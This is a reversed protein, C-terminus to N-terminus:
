TLDENNDFNLEKPESSEDINPLQPLDSDNDSELDNNNFTNIGLGENGIEPEEGDEDGFHVKLAEKMKSVWNDVSKVNTTASFLTQVSDLLKLATQLDESSSFLQWATSTFDTSSNLANLLEDTESNPIRTLKYKLDSKVLNPIDQVFKNVTNEIVASISEILKSYRLDSRILSVATDGLNQTFDAYNKPFRLGMFLKSLVYDLDTLNGIDMNPTHEKIDINGVGRNTLVVPIDDNFYDNSTLDISEANIKGSFENVLNQEDDGQHRGVEVQAVRVIRLQSRLRQIQKEIFALDRAAQLANKFQIGVPTIRLLDSSLGNIKTTEESLCSKDYYVFCLCDRLRKQDKDFVIFDLNKDLYISVEGLYPYFSFDGTKDNFITKYVSFGQKCLDTAAWRVINNLALTLNNIRERLSRGVRKHSSAFLPAKGICVDDVTMSVITDLLGAVSPPIAADDLNNGVTSTGRLGDGPRRGTGNITGTQVDYEGPKRLMNLNVGLWRMISSGLGEIRNM